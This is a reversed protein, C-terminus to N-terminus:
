KRLIAINLCFALISTVLAIVSLILRGEESM